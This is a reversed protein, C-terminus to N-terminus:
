MLWKYDGGTLKNHSDTAKAIAIVGALASLGIVVVGVVVYLIM